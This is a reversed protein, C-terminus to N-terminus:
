DVWTFTWGHGHGANPAKAMASGSAAHLNQSRLGGTGDLKHKTPPPARSVWSGVFM